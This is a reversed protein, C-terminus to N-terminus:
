HSFEAKLSALDIFAERNGANRDAEAERLAAAEEETIEGGEIIERIM